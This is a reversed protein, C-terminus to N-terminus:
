KQRIMDKRNLLVSELISQSMKRRLDSKEKSVLFSSDVVFMLRSVVAVKYKGIASALKPVIEPRSQQIVLFRDFM